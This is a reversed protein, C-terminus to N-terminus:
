FLDYCVLFVLLQNDLTLGFRMFFFFLCLVFKLFCITQYFIYFVIM